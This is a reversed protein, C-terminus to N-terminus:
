IRKEGMKTNVAFILNGNLPFSIFSNKDLIDLLPKTGGDHWELMIVSVDKFFGQKDMEPFIKYEEGECDIKMLINKPLPTLIDKFLHSISKVYITEAVAKKLGLKANRSDDSTTMCGSIDSSFNIDCSYDRDSVGFNYLKIKQAASKNLSLNELALQYTPRFPEFAHVISVNELNAFYLATDGINAGIDIVTWDEEKSEFKYQLEWFVEAIQGINIADKIVFTLEPNKITLLLKKDQKYFKGDLKLVIIRMLPLVRFSPHKFFMIFAKFNLAKFYEGANKIDIVYPKLKTKLWIIFCKLITIM